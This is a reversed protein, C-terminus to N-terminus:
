AVVGPGCGGTLLKVPDAFDLRYGIACDAGEGPRAARKEESGATAIVATGFARAVQIAAIGLGRAAGPVLVWKGEKLRSRQILAHYPTTYAGRFVGAQALTLGSPVPDCLEAKANGPEAMAGAARGSMLRDGIAFGGVDPEAAAAYGAAESGSIFPLDPRFQYKGPQMLVDGYQIAHASIRM